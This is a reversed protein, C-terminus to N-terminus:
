GAAFSIRDRFPENGTRGGADVPRRATWGFSLGGGPERRVTSRYFCRNSLTATGYIVNLGKNSTAFLFLGPAGAFTPCADRRDRLAVTREGVSRWLCVPPVGTRSQNLGRRKM